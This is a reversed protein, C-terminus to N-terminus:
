PKAGLQQLLAVAELYHPEDKAYRTYVELAARAAEPHGLKSEALGRWWYFYYHTPYDRNLDAAVRSLTTWDDRVAASIVQVEMRRFPDSLSRSLEAAWAVPVLDPEHLLDAFRGVTAVSTSSHDLWSQAVEKRLERRAVERAAALEDKRDLLTLAPITDVVPGTVSDAVRTVAYACSQLIDYRSWDVAHSARPFEASVTFQEPLSQAHAVPISVIAVM